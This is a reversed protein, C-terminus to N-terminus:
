NYSQIFKNRLTCSYTCPSSLYLPTVSPTVPFITVNKTPFNTYLRTKRFWVQELIEGFFSVWQSTKLSVDWKRLKGRSTSPRLNFIRFFHSSIDSNCGYMKNTVKERDKIQARTCYEPVLTLRARHWLLDQNIAQEPHRGVKKRM